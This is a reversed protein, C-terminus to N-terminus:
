LLHNGCSQPLPHCGVLCILDTRHLLGNLRAQDVHLTFSFVDFWTEFGRVFGAWEGSPWLLSVVMLAVFSALVVGPDVWACLRCVMSTGTTDFLWGLPWPAASDVGIGFAHESPCMVLERGTLFIDSRGLNCALNHLGDAAGKLEPPLRSAQIALFAESGFGEVLEVINRGRYCLLM